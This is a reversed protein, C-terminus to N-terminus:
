RASIVWRKQDHDVTLANPWFIHDKVIVTRTLNNGDMSSREIKAEKGWDSWFM